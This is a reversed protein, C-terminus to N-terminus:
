PKEETEESFFDEPKSKIEEGTKLVGKQKLFENALIWFLMGLSQKGKNNCPVVLDLKMAENNTNCLGIVPVGGVNLADNVANIDAWPDVVLLAKTEIFNELNPNTMIGPPYRGVICKIGTVAAFMKVPKWGNERRCVVLIDKPDYQALFKAAIKIREDIKQVNMVALGDGRVKYIFPAM